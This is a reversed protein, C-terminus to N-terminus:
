VFEQLFIEVVRSDFHKGSEPRIHDYVDSVAFAM